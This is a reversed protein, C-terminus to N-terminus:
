EEPKVLRLIERRYPRVLQAQELVCQLFEHGMERKELQILSALLFDPARWCELATFPVRHYARLFCALPGTLADAKRREPGWSIKNGLQCAM